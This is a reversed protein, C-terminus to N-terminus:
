GLKGLLQIAILIHPVEYYYPYNSCDAHACHLLNLTVYHEVVVSFFVSLLGSCSLQMTFAAWVCRGPPQYSAGSVGVWFLKLM